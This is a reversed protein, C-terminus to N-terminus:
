EHDAFSDTNSNKSSADLTYQIFGKPLYEAYYTDLLQEIPNKRNIPKNVLENISKSIFNGFLESDPFHGREMMKYLQSNYENRKPEVLHSFTSVDVPSKFALNELRESDEM